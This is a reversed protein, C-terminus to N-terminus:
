YYPVVFDNKTFKGRFYNAEHVKRRRFVHREPVELLSLSRMDPVPQWNQRNGGLPIRSFVELMCQYLCLCENLIQNEEKLRIIDANNCGNIKHANSGGVKFLYHFVFTKVRKIGRSPFNASNGTTPINRGIEIQLYGENLWVHQRQRLSVCTRRVALLEFAIITEVDPKFILQQCTFFNRFGSMWLLLIPGVSRQAQLIRTPTRHTYFTSEADKHFGTLFGTEDWKPIRKIASAVQTCLPPACWKM